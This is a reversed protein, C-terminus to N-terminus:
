FFSPNGPRKMLAYDLHYTAPDVTTEPDKEGEFYQAKTAELTLVAEEIQKTLAANSPDKWLAKLPDWFPALGEEYANGNQSIIATTREPHKLTLRLGVPAGYDFIYIAYSTIKLETLFEDVTDALNAFTYSYNLSSPVETFGFGPLDPAVVHYKEALLPILNRYQFSSSPFGHLLLITPASPSGAQRSFIRISNLLTTYM